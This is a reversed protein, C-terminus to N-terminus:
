AGCKPCFDLGRIDQQYIGCVSCPFGDLSHAFPHEEYEGWYGYVVPVVDVPPMMNTIIALQHYMYPNSKKVYQLLAERDIYVAMM